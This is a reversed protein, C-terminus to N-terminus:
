KILVGNEVMRKYIWNDTNNISDKYFSVDGIIFLHPIGDEIDNVIKYTEKTLINIVDITLYYLLEVFYSTTSLSDGEKINRKRGYLKAYDNTFKSGNHLISNRLLNAEDLIDILVKDIDLDIEFKDKLKKFRKSFSGDSWKRETAKTIAMSELETRTNNVIENIPLAIQHQYLYDIKNSYIYKVSDLTFGEIIGVLYVIQQSILIQTFDIQPVNFYRGGIVSQIVNYSKNKRKLTNIINIYPSTYFNGEIEVDDFERLNNFEEGHVIADGDDLSKKWNAHFPQTVIDTLNNPFDELSKMSFLFALRSKNIELITNRHLKLYPDNSNISAM